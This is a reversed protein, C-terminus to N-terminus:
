FPLWDGLLPRPMPVHMVEILLGRIFLFMGAAGLAGIWLPERKVTMYGFVFLPVAILHGIILVGAVLIVVAVVPWLVTRIQDRSFPPPAAGAGPEEREDDQVRGLAIRAGYVVSCVIMLVAATVPFLQDDFPFQWVGWIALIGLVFFFVTLVIDIIRGISM